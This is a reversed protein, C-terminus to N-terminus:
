GLVAPLSGRHRVANPVRPPEKPVAAQARGWVVLQPKSLCGSLCSGALNHDLVLQDLQSASMGLSQLTNHCLTVCYSNRYVAAVALMVSEKRTRTLARERLVVANALCAVAEPIRQLVMQARFLNPLFGFVEEVSVSTRGLDTEQLYSM